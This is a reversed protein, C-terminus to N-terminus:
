VVHEVEFTSKIISDRKQIQELEHLERHCNACLLICKDLEARITDNVATGRKHAITFDKKTPDLHHFDLAALSKNYGCKSCKGGKYTVCEQKISATNNRNITKLCNRCKTCWIGIEPSFTNETTKEIGCGSCKTETTMKYRKRPISLFKKHCDQCRKRTTLIKNSCDSCTKTRKESSDSVKDSRTKHYCAQSCYKRNHRKNVFQHSCVECTFVLM